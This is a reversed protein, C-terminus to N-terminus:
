KPVKKPREMQAAVQPPLAGGPRQDDVTAQPAAAMTAAPAQGQTYYQQFQTPAGYAVMSAQSPLAMQQQPATVFSAGQAFQMTPQAYQMEYAQPAQAYQM